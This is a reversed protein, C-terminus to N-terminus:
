KEYVGFKGQHHIRAFIDVLSSLKALEDYGIQLREPNVWSGHRFTKLTHTGVGIFFFMGDAVFQYVTKGDFKSRTPHVEMFVGNSPDGDIHTQYIYSPFNNVATDLGNLLINRLYGEYKGLSALKFSDQTSISARWLLSLLFLKFLRYDYDENCYPKKTTEIKPKADDYLISKAYDEYGQIIHECDRCLLEEYIGKRRRKNCKGEEANFEIYSHNDDYCHAYMYEPYIHSKCLTKENLCLRCRPV